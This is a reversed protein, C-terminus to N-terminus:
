RAFSRLVGVPVNVVIAQVPNRGASRLQRSALRLDDVTDTLADVVLIVHRTPDALEVADITALPSSSVRGSTASAADAKTLADKALEVVSPDVPGRVGALHVVVPSKPEHGAAGRISLGALAALGGPTLTLDCALLGVVVGGGLAQEVESASHMKRDLSSKVRIGVLALAAGVFAGLLALTTRGPGPRDEVSESSVRVWADPRQEIEAAVQATRDLEVQRVVLRDREVLLGDARAGTATGLEADIASRRATLDSSEDKTAQSLGALVSGSLDRRIQRFRDVYATAAKQRQSATGGTATILVYLDSRFPLVTVSVNKAVQKVLDRTEQSALSDAEAGFTSSREGFRKPFVSEAYPTLEDVATARVVYAGGFPSSTAAAAVVFGLLGGAVVLWWFRRVHRAFRTVDNSETNM